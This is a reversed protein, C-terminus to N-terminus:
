SKIRDKILETLNINESILNLTKLIIEIKKM